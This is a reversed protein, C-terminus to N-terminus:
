IDGCRTLFSAFIGEGQLVLDTLYGVGPGVFIILDEGGGARGAGGGGASKVNIPAYLFLLFLKAATM